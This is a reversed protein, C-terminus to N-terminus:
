ITSEACIISKTSKLELEVISKPDPPPKGPITTAIISL